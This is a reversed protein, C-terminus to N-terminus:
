QESRQDSDPAHMGPTKSHPMRVARWVSDFEDEAGPPPQTLMSVVITVAFGVLFGPIMEYLDYFLEKFGIVWVVAALFGAIM